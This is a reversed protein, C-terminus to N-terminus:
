AGEEEVPEEAKSKEYTDVPDSKTVEGEVEDSKEAIISGHGVTKIPTGDPECPVSTTQLSLCTSCVWEMAPLDSEVNSVTGCVGCQLSYIM